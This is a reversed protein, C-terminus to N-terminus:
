RPIAHARVPPRHTSAGNVNVSRELTLATGAFRLVFSDRFATELYQCQLTFEGPASWGGSAATALEDPEYGHHLGAGPLTTRSELWGADMSAAVCHTRDGVQLRLRCRTPEIELVVSRVGDENPDAVFRLGSIGEEAFQVRGPRVPSLRRTDLYAGLDEESRGHLDAGAVLRPLHQWVLPPIGTDPRSISGPVAATVALALGHEPFVFGYQGFAGFAYFGPRGPLAWWHLGYPRGPAGQGAAGAWGEPLIRRGNWMGEAAHLVALKLLDETVASAGNGGPNIGEPGVDWKLSRMGLPAFLRPVLYDHLSVGSTRKVLASLMFSTASSYQFHTGPAHPVPIKMFEDIWSTSIGRWVSGSTGHDHGSTQTLLDIVRMTRLHVPTGPHVREPFHDLVADDLGFLGEHVALGVGTATFAKTVSHLMHVREPGYPHWWGEAVVQGHRALMFSHLELGNAAMARLLGLIGAASLGQAGPTSRALAQPDRADALTAAATYQAGM